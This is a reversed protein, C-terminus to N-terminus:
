LLPSNTQAEVNDTELFVPHLGVNAEGIINTGKKGWYGKYM